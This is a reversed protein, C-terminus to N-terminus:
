KMLEVVPTYTKVFEYASDMVHLNQSYDEQVAGNILDSYFSLSQEILPAQCKTILCHDCSLGVCNGVLPLGNSMDGCDLSNVPITKACPKATEDSPDFVCVAMPTLLFHMNGHKARELLYEEMTAGLVDGTLGKFIPDERLSHKIREGTVGALKGSQASEGIGKIIKLSQELLIDQRAKIILPNNKLYMETMAISTHSFLRMVLLPGLVPSNLVFWGAITKRFQHPHPEYAMGVDKAFAKVYNGITTSTVQNSVHDSKENAQLPSVLINERRNLTGLKELVKVALYTIKPVPLSIVQGQYYEKSTKRVILTLRFFEDVGLSTDPVCCGVELNRIERSRMGTTYLIIIIAARKIHALCQMAARRDMRYTFKSPDSPSAYKTFVLDFPLGFALDDFEIGRAACAKVVSGRSVISSDKGSLVGENVVQHYQILPESYKEIYDIAANALPFAYELPIAQWGSTDDDEEPDQVDSTDDFGRFDKLKKGAFPDSKLKLFSPIKQEDGSNRWWELLLRVRDHKTNDHLKSSAVSVIYDYFDDASLEGPLSFWGGHHDTILCKRKVLWRVFPKSGYLINYVTRPARDILAYDKLMCYAIIKLMIVLPLYKDGTGGVLACFDIRYGLGELRFDWVDDRLVSLQSVRRDGFIRYVSGLTVWRKELLSKNEALSLAADAGQM